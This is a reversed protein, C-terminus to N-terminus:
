DEWNFGELATKARFYPLSLEFLKIDDNFYRDEVQVLFVTTEIRVPNERGQEELFEALRVMQPVAALGLDEMADIDVADLSGEIYRDVNYKAIYGDTNPLALGAFMLVLVAISVALANLKPVFQKIIILIFIIALVAMFWAAYVRKPTLGYCDIYMTLKAIATSILVITFISFIISLSKFVINTAKTRHRMFIIILALVALNIVSVICLQFFGERAYEAYSFNSPLVGTFGSVYYSWQSIFFVVYIFLLPLVGALITIMPAIKVKASVLKCGEETIIDKCKVDTASIFSGFLYMAVPVGFIISIIHSAIDIGEFSFIDSLLKNFSQDYSLLAWVLITPLAMIGLGVLAKVLFKGSKQAKGSFMAKFIQGLSVFPMIILAKFFDIAIYDTFGHKIANGTASYLYYCYIILAYASAIFRLMENSTLLLTCAVVIASIAATLPIAGLKVKRLKMVVTATIFMFLIFIFSGLPKETAPFSKCFLYGGLLCLWAFICESAKYERSTTVTASDNEAALNPSLSEDM